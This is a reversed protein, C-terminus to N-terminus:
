SMNYLKSDLRRLMWPGSKAQVKIVKPDLPRLSIRWSDCGAIRLNMRGAKWVLGSARRCCDDLWQGRYSGSLFVRLCNTRRISLWWWQFAKRYFESRLFSTVNAPKSSLPPRLWVLLPIICCYLVLQVRLLSEFGLWRTSRSGTRFGSVPLLPLCSGVHTQVKSCLSVEEPLRRM